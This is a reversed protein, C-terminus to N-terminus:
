SSNPQPGPCGNEGYLRLKRSEWVDVLFKLQLLSFYDEWLESGLVYSTKELYDFDIYKDGLLMELFTLRYNSYAACRQLVNVVSECEAGCLTREKEERGRHGSLEENLGHTGSRFKFLLRSGVDSM